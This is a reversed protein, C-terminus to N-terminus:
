DARAPRGLGCIPLLEGLGGITAAAGPGGTRDLLLARFGAAAAGHADERLSDGVHLISHPPLGLSNAAREFIGGAPKACGAEISVTIVDFASELRLQGLLPRLREDWNSIIGMKFGRARLVELVPRVDDFLRWSEAKAFVVYIGDFFVQVASPDILGNFTEEVLRLWAARSHNFDGKSSWAAAFQENLVDTPVNRYGHRAAIGAYVHGVSPWPRILTGGVDFTVACIDRSSKM